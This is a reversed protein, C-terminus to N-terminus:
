QGTKNQMRALAAAAARDARARREAIATQEPTPAPLQLVAPATAVVPTPVAVRQATGSSAAATSSSSATGVPVLACSTDNVSMSLALALEFAADEDMEHQERSAKLIAEMQAAYEAVGTNQTMSNAVATALEPDEDMTDAANAANHPRHALWMERSAELVAALEPDNAAEPDPAYLTEAAQGFRLPSRVDDSAHLNVLFDLMIRGLIVM